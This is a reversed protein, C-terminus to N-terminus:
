AKITVVAQTGYRIEPPVTDLRVHCAVMRKIKFVKEVEEHIASSLRTIEGSYIHAPYGEFRIQVKNGVKYRNILREPIGAELYFTVPEAMQVLEDGAKLYNGTMEAQTNLVVGSFSAKIEMSELQGKLFDLNSRALDIEKQKGEVDDKSQSLALEKSEVVSKSVVKNEYLLTVRSFDLAAHDQRKGLAIKEFNLKEIELQKSKLQESLEPNELRAIVAGVKVFDGKKISIEKLIGPVVVGVRVLRESKIQGTTKLEPSYFYWFAAIALIALLILTGRYGGKSKPQDQFLSPDKGEFGNVNSKDAAAM